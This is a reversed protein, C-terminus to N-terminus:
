GHVTGHGLILLFVFLVISSFLLLPLPLCFYDLKWFSFETVFDVYLFVDVMNVSTEKTM